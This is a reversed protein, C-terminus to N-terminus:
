ISTLLKAGLFVAYGHQKTRIQCSAGWEKQPLQLHWVVGTVRLLVDSPAEASLFVWRCGDWLETKELRLCWRGASVSHPWWWKLCRCLFFTCLTFYLPSFLLCFHLCVRVGADKMRQCSWTFSARRTGRCSCPIGSVLGDLYGELQVGMVRADGRIRRPFRLVKIAAEEKCATNVFGPHAITAGPAHLPSM